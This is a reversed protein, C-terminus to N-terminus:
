LRGPLMVFLTKTQICDPPRNKVEKQITKGASEVTPPDSSLVCEAANQLVAAPPAWCIGPRLWQGSLILGTPGQLGPASSVRGPAAPVRDDELLQLCTRRTLGLLSMYHQSKLGTVTMVQLLAALQGVVLLQQVLPVGLHRHHILANSIEPLSQM